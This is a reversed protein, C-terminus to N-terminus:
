TKSFILQRQSKVIKKNTSKVAKQLTTFSKTAKTPKLLKAAIKQQEIIAPKIDIIKTKELTKVLQTDM